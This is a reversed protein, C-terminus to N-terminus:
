AHRSRKLVKGLAWVGLASQQTWRGERVGKQLWEPLGQNDTSPKSVQPSASPALGAPLSRISPKELVAPAVSLKQDYVYM